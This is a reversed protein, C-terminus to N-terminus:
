TCTEEKKNLFMFSAAKRLMSLVHPYCAIWCELYLVHVFNINYLVHSVKFIGAISLTLSSMHSLLLFESISIILALFEGFLLMSVTVWIIHSDPAAFLKPLVALKEGLEQKQTLIQSLTWRLGSLGSALLALQYFEKWTFLGLCFLGRKKVGYRGSCDWSHQQYLCWQMICLVFVWPSTFHRCFGNTTFRWVLLSCTCLSFTDLRGSRM